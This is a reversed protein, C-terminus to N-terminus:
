LSDADSDDCPLLDSIDTTSVGLVTALHMGEAGHSGHHLGIITNGPSSSNDLTLFAGSEEDGTFV